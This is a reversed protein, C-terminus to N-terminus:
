YLALIYVIVELLETRHFLKNYVPNQEGTDQFHTFCITNELYLFLFYFLLSMFSSHTLQYHTEPLKKSNSWDESLVWQSLITVIYNSNLLLFPGRSQHKDCSVKRGPAWNYKGNSFYDPSPVKHFSRSDWNKEKTRSNLVQLNQLFLVNLIDSIIHGEFYQICICFDWLYHFKKQKCFTRNRQSRTKENNRVESLAYLLFYSFYFLM